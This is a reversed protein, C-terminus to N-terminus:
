RIFAKKELEEQLEKSSLSPSAKQDIKSYIKFAWRDWEEAQIGNQSMTTAQNIMKKMSKAEENVKQYEKSLIKADIILSEIAGISSENSKISLLSRIQAIENQIERTEKSVYSEIRKPIIEIISTFNSESIDQDIGLIQICKQFSMFITSLSKAHKDKLLNMEESWSNKLNNIINDKLSIIDNYERNKMEYSSILSTKQQNLEIVIKEKCNNIETIQIQLEKIKELMKNQACILDLNKSRYNEIIAENQKKTKEYESGSDKTNQKLQHLKAKYRAIVDNLQKQYSVKMIELQQNYSIAQSEIQQEMSEIKNKYKGNIGSIEAELENIHKKKDVNIDNIHKEHLIYQKQIVEELDKIKQELINNKNDTSKINMEYERCIEQYQEVEGRLESIIDNNSQINDHINQIVRRLKFPLNNSCKEFNSINVLVHNISNILTRKKEASTKEQLQREQIETQIRMEDEVIVKELEEIKKKYVDSQLIMRQNFKRMVDNITFAAQVISILESNLVDNIRNSDIILDLARSLELPNSEPLLARFLTSDYILDPANAKLFTEVRHCQGKITSVIQLDSPKEIIWEHLEGKCIIDNIFQNQAMSLGLLPSSSILPLKQALHTVLGEIGNVSYEQIALNKCPLPVNKELISIISDDKNKMNLKLSNNEKELEMIRQHLKLNSNYGKKENLYDSMYIYSLIKYAEFIIPLGELEKTPLEKMNELELFILSLLENIDGSQGDNDLYKSLKRLYGKLKEKEKRDSICKIGNKISDELLIEGINYLENDSSKM